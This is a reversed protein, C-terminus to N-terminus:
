IDTAVTSGVFIFLYIIFLLFLKLGNQRRQALVINSKAHYSCLQDFSQSYDPESSKYHSSVLIYGIEDTQSFQCLSQYRCKQKRMHVFLASKRM